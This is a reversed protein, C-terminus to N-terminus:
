QNIEAIYSLAFVHVAKGARSDRPHDIHPDTIVIAAYDVFSGIFSPWDSLFTSSKLVTVTSINAVEPTVHSTDVNLV